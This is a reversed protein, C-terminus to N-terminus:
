LVVKHHGGHLYNMTQVTLLVTADRKTERESYVLRLKLERCRDIIEGLVQDVTYQYEGTWHSVVRRLEARHRRLFVSAAPRKRYEDADSFLRLLERDYYNPQDIGYRSRKEDYHERLTKRVTRLPDIHRRSSVKPKEDAIEDMLEDVYEIKKLAPWGEYQTRWPSRPRLWVAFTEAFDEAPHSQSYWPELHLVFSKSYPRPHYCDPYPDSFNGFHERWLRRRHLQYATDIAHGAEHRLIRMCWKETGGEVELLQKRELRALRPHALYFPIAIGPADDPSFWEDSLYCHPKFRIGRQALEDYLRAIRPELLTGEIAVDLDCIRWDLLENDPLEVWEPQKSARRSRAKTSGNRTHTKSTM